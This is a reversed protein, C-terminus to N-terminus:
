GMPPFPFPFFSIRNAWGIRRRWLSTLFHLPRKERGWWFNRRRRLCFFRNRLNPPGYPGPKVGLSVVAREGRPPRSLLHQRRRPSYSDRPPSGRFAMPRSAAQSIYLFLPLDISERKLCVARYGEGKKRALDEERRRLSWSLM